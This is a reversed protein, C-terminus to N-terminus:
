NKNNYKLFLIGTVIVSSVVGYAIDYPEQFDRDKGWFFFFSGVIFGFLVSKVVNNAVNDSGKLLFNLIKNRSKKDAM